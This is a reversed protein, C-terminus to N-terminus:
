KQAERKHIESLQEQWYAVADVAMNHAQEVIKSRDGGLSTSMQAAIPLSALFASSYFEEHTM